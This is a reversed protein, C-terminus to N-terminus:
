KVVMIKTVISEGKDPQSALVLYVGTAVREGNKKKCNWTLEGGLSKGQFVLNGNLDTIKITSDYMLGTITVQDDYEPRVPNPYAYVDSYTEGGESAGTMYSVLGKETGIFMEGTHSNFAMSKIYNSPLPSNETTFNEATESGDESVVFIGHTETGFWKRNGGDITITRINIGDLFYNSLSTKDDTRVLRSAYVYPDDPKDIVSKPSHCVIPGINTGIWISGNKDETMCYYTSANIKSPKGDAYHYFEPIVKTIDDSTDDITGKDDFAFIYSDSGSNGRLVNIWKHNNKTILIKDILYQGKLRNYGNGSLKSWEGDAKMIKIGSTVESNTMWLNNYKDFCVGETRIGSFPNSKSTTELIGNTNEHTYLKVLENDKFEYVGEGWSSAFYHNEDLPNVTVCTIDKFNKIKKDDFNFWKGDEYVMLTGKENSRDTWRDGGAILLKNNQYTMFANLNRIPSDMELDSVIIEFQNGNKKIGKLGEEGSAIWFINDDKLFSVDNITNDKLVFSNTFSSMITAQTKALLILQNNQISINTLQSNSSITQITNDSAKYYAGTKTKGRVYFILENQFFCVNRITDSNLEMSLSYQNWKGPDLLNDSMSGYMIKNGAAAYIMDDKICSSYVTTNLKYTNTIEQKTTNIVVIGFATSIYAYEKNCYIGNIKKNQITIDEKIFPLNKIKNTNTSLLDINGNTYAIVLTHTTINYGITDIQTDNLGNLTSYFYISNDEKDYSYLANNALGFVYQPTEAVATTNHYSFHTQWTGIGQAIGHSLLTVLLLLIYIIKKM